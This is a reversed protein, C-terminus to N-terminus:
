KDEEFPTNKMAEYAKDLAEPSSYYIQHNILKLGYQECLAIIKNVTEEEGMSERANPYNRVGARKQSNWISSDAALALFEKRVEQPLSLYTFKMKVYVAKEAREPSEDDTISKLLITDELGAIRKKLTAIKRTNATTKEAEEDEKQSLLQDLTAKDKKLQGEFDFLIKVSRRNQQAKLYSSYKDGGCGALLLGLMVLLWMKKM